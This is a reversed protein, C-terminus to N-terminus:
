PCPAQEAGVVSSLVPALSGSGRWLKYITLDAALVMGYTITIGLFWQSLPNFDWLM